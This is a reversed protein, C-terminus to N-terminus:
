YDIKLIINSLSIRFEDIFNSKIPPTWWFYKIITYPINLKKFEIESPGSQPIILHVLHGHHILIRILDLASREAGGLMASHLFILIRM